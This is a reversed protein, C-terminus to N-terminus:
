APALWVVGDGAAVPQRVRALFGQIRGSRPARLDVRRGASTVTAVVDGGAVVTGKDVLSDVHGEATSSVVVCSPIPIM